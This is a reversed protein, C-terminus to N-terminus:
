GNPRDRAPSGAFRASVQGLPGFDGVLDDGAKVRYMGCLTGTSVVDGARLGPGRAALWNALWTAPVLPHDIARGINGTRKVEGGALLRVNQGALDRTRWDPITPGIVLQGSGSGDALIAPLSPFRDDHVFRCEAIEMGIHVADVAEAVSSEDYPAHASALDRGFRIILEPEAVPWVLSAHDLDAPGAHVCQAFVRGVIPEAARLAKRMEPKNAAIKWGAVPWGLRAAVGDAVRYGAAADPPVLAPDLGSQRRGERRLRALLDALETEAETMARLM